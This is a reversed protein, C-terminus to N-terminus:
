EIERYQGMINLAVDYSHATTTIKDIMEQAQEYLGAKTLAKRCIAMLNFVNGNEGKLKAKPKAV